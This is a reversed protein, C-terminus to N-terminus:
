LFFHVRLCSDGPGFRCRIRRWLCCFCTKWFAIHWMRGFRSCPSESFGYSLSCEIGSQVVPHHYEGTVLIGGSYLEGADESDNLSQIPTEMAWIKGWFADVCIFDLVSHNTKKKRSRRLPSSHAFGIRQLNCFRPHCCPFVFWSGAVNLM